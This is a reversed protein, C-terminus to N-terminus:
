GDVQTGNVVVVRRVRPKLVRVKGGRQRALAQDGEPRVLSGNDDERLPSLSDGKSCNLCLLTRGLGEVLVERETLVPRQIQDDPNPGEVFQHQSSPATRCPVSQVDVFPRTASTPASGSVFREAPSWESETTPRQTRWTLTISNAPQRDSRDVCRRSCTKRPTITTPHVPQDTAANPEPRVPARLHRQQRSANM